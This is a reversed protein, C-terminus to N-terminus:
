TKKRTIDIAAPKLRRTLFAAGVLDRLPMEHRKSEDDPTFPLRPLEHGQAPNCDPCPM